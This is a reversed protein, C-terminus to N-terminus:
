KAFKGLNPVAGSALHTYTHDDEMGNEKNYVGKIDKDKIYLYVNDGDDLEQHKMDSNNDINSESTEIKNSESNVDTKSKPKENNNSGSEAKSSLAKYGKNEMIQYQISVSLINISGYVKYHLFM